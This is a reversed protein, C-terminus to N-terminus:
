GNPEGKSIKYKWNMKKCLSIADKRLKFGTMWFGKDDSIVYLLPGSEDTRYVIYETEPNLALKIAEEFGGPCDMKFERAWDTEVLEDRTM